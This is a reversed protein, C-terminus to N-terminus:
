HTRGGMTVARAPGGGSITRTQIHGAMDGAKPAVTKTRSVGM